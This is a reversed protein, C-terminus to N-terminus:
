FASLIEENSLTTWELVLRRVQSIDDPIDAPETPPMHAASEREGPGRDDEDRSMELIKSPPRHPVLTASSVLHNTLRLAGGTSDPHWPSSPPKSQRAELARPPSFLANELLSSLEDANHTLRFRQVENEHTQLVGKRVRRRRRADLDYHVKNIERLLSCMLNYYHRLDDEDDTESEERTQERDQNRSINGDNPIQVLNVEPLSPKDATPDVSNEKGRDNGTANNTVVRKIYDFMNNDDAEQQMLIQM